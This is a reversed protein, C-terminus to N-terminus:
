ARGPAVAAALQLAHSLAGILLAARHFAAWAAPPAASTLSQLLPNSWHPGDPATAHEADAAAGLASDLASAALIALTPLAAVAVPAVALQLPRWGAAQAVCNASGATELTNEVEPYALAPCLAPETQTTCCVRLLASLVLLTSQASSAPMYPRQYRCASRITTACNPVILEHGLM